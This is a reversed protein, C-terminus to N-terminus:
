IFEDEFMKRLKKLLRQMRKQSAWLSIGMEQAIESFKKGEIIVSCLLAYEEASLRERCYMWVGYKDDTPIIQKQIADENNECEKAIRQNKQEARKKNMIKYKLTQMLWGEPNQSKCFQEWREITTCFTDQVVDEASEMDKLQSFAYLKLKQYMKGYYQDFLQMIDCRGERYIEVSM